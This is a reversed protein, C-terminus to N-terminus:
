CKFPWLVSAETTMIESLKDDGTVQSLLWDTSTTAELGPNLDSAQLQLSLLLILAVCLKFLLELRQDILACSQTDPTM